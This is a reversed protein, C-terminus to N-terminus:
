SRWPILARVRADRLYLGLWALVGIIVQPVFGEGVRVHTAIAGGMYGTVLIAGLVATQPALYLVICALELVGIALMQELKWGIPELGKAMEPTMFLKIAGSPLLAIAPLASVVYGTWLM